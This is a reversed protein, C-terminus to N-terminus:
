IHILSLSAPIFSLNALHIIIDIGNFDKVENWNCIDIGNSLDCLELEFNLLNLRNILHKGIFGSYGTILIKM